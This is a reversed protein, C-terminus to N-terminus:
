ADGGARRADAATERPAPKVQRIQAARRVPMVMQVLKAVSTVGMKNMVHGRHVEITKPSTGLERAILKNPKGEIVQWLVDYERPTLSDIRGLVLAHRALAHAHRMESRKESTIDELIKVLLPGPHSECDIRSAVVRAWVTKGQQDIFRKEFDVHDVRGSTIGAHRENTAQVDAPHVFHVYPHGILESASYGLLRQCAPNSELIVGDRDILMIGVTVNEFVSQYRARLENTTRQLRVRESIDRLIATFRRSSGARAQSISAEIPFEEGDARLGTVTSQGGMDRVTVNSKAFAEFHHRHAECFRAPIFKGLPQGIANKVSCRFMRAAAENFLTVVQREDVSIIADMASAIIASLFESENADRTTRPRYSKARQARNPRRSTLGSRARPM